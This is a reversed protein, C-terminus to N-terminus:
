YVGDSISVNMETVKPVIVKLVFRDSIQVNKLQSM